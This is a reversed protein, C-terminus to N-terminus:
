TITSSVGDSVGIVTIVKENVIRDLQGSDVSRAKIWYGLGEDLDIVEDVNYRTLDIIFYDEQEPRFGAPLDKSDMLFDRTSLDYGGSRTYGQNVNLKVFERMREDPLRVVRKIDIRIKTRTATGLLEDVSTVNSRYYEVANGYQRKLRYLVKRIFRLRNAL